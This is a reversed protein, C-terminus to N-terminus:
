EASTIKQRNRCLYAMELIIGRENVKSCRSRSVSNATENPRQKKQCDCGLSAMELIMGRKSVKSLRSRSVSNASDIPAQKKLLCLRSVSNRSDKRTKEQCECGLYGMEFISGPNNFKQRDVRSVSNELDNPAQQNTSIRM